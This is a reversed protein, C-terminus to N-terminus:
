LELRPDIALRQPQVAGFRVVHDALRLRARIQRQHHMPAIALRHLHWNDTTEIRRFLNRNILRAPHQLPKSLVKDLSSASLKKNTLGITQSNMRKLEKSAPVARRFESARRKRPQPQGGRAESEEPTRPERHKSNNGRM